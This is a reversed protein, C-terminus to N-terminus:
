VKPKLDPKLNTEKKEEEKEKLIIELHSMRKQNVGSSFRAGHANDIRKLRPGDSVTLSNILLNERKLGFNNEAEAQACIILKGLFKAGKQPLHALIILAEEPSKNVVLRTLPRVKKASIPLFKAKTKVVKNEAM